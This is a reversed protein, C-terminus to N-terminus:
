HIKPKLLKNEFVFALVSSLEEPEISGSLTEIVQLLNESKNIQEIFKLSSDTLLTNNVLHHLKYVLTAQGGSNLDIAVKGKYSPLSQTYIDHLPFLSSTIAVSDNLEVPMTLLEEQAVEAPDLCDSVKSFYSEHVSWELEILPKLYPMNKLEKFEALIAEFGIGYLHINGEEPPTQQIFRQAMQKFFAEGVVGQTAPYVEQLYEQIAGFVNNQYIWIRHQQDKEVGALASELDFVSDM